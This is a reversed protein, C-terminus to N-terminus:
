ERGEGPWEGMRCVGEVTGFVRLVNGFEGWFANEGELNPILEMRERTVQEIPVWGTQDQIYEQTEWTNSIDETESDWKGMGEHKSEQENEEDYQEADEDKEETEDNDNNDSSSSGDNVNLKRLSDFMNKTQFRRQQDDKGNKGKKARHKKKNNKVNETQQPREVPPLPVPKRTEKRGHKVLDDIDITSRASKFSDKDSGSDKVRSSPTNLKDALPACVEVKRGAGLKAALRIM